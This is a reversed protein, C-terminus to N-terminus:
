PWTTIAGFPLNSPKQSDERAVPHFKVVRHDKIMSIHKQQLKCILEKDVTFEMSSNQCLDLQTILYELHTKDTSCNAVLFSLRDAISPITGQLM